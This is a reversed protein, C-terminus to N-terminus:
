RILSSTPLLPPCQGILAAVPPPARAMLRFLLGAGTLRLGDTGAGKATKAKTKTRALAFLSSLCESTHAVRVEVEAVFRPWSEEAQGTRATRRPNDDGRQIISPIYTSRQQDSANM